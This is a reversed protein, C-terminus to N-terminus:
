TTMTRLDEQYGNSQRSSHQSHLSAPFYHKTYQLKTLLDHNFRPTRGNPHRFFNNITTQSQGYKLMNARATRVRRLWRRRVSPRSRLLKDLNSSCYHRDEAPLLLPNAFYHRIESSEASYRVSLISEQQKNLVDNCSLWLSRTFHHLAKLTTHIRHNGRQFDPKPSAIPSTSALTLWAMAMYGQLLHLWGIAHQQKTAEQTALQFHPPHAHYRIKVLQEPNNLYQSIGSAISVGYPHNNDKGILTKLLLKVADSRAPNNPCHLFHFQDEETTQCCPCLSIAQDKVTAM